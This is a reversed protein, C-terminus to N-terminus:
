QLVRDDADTLGNRSLLLLDRIWFVGCQFLCAIFVAIGARDMTEGQGLAVWFVMPAAILLTPVVKDFTPLSPQITRKKDGVLRELLISVVVSGPFSAGVGRWRRFLVSSGFISVLWEVGGGLLMYAAYWNLPNGRGFFYTIRSACVLSIAFVVLRITGSVTRGVYFRPAGLYGGIVGLLFATRWHHRSPRIRKAEAVSPRRKIGPALPVHAFCYHKGKDLNDCVACLPRGCTRCATIAANEPHRHCKASIRKRGDNVRPEREEAGAYERSM